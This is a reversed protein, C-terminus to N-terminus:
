KPELLETRIAACARTIVAYRRQVEAVISELMRIALRVTLEPALGERLLRHAGNILYSRPMNTDTLRQTVTLQYGLESDTRDFPVARREEDDATRPDSMAVFAVEQWDELPNVTALELYAHVARVLPQLRTDGNTDAFARVRARLGRSFLSDRAVADLFSAHLEKTDILSDRYRRFAELYHVHLADVETMMAAVADEYLARDVEERRRVLDILRDIVDGVITM